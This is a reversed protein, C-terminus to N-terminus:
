PGAPPAQQPPGAVALDVVSITYPAAALEITGGSRTVPAPAFGSTEGAFAFARVAGDSGCGELAIRADIRSRPSLNLVVLVMRTGEPNRSAFLSALPARGNVPVSVDQFRGGLGDFDRFARFAWWSPSRDAPYTWYYASHVGETGFRGLVEAAALGGSMHGEAGFSWEGISIKRGPLNEAIWERLRPLLRMPEDIWSEDVYSPDWLSRTSRLRLAASYPDTPGALGVGSVPTPYHHVDVVDLLRIGTRDEHERLRRLYWPLLPVNGHVLRDPRLWTSRAVDKASFLLNQWGWEAPGAICAEPDARRIATGYALTRQLLEDYGPPDPHVDRHTANWLM